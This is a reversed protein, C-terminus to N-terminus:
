DRLEIKLNSIAVGDGADPNFVYFGFTSPVDDYVIKDWTVGRRPMIRDVDAGYEYKFSWPSQGVNESVAFRNTQEGQSMLYAAGGNYHMAVHDRLAQSHMVVECAKQGGTLALSVSIVAHRVGVPFFFSNTISGQYKFGSGPFEWILANGEVKWGESRDLGRCSTRAFEAFTEFAEQATVEIQGDRYLKRALALARRCRELEATDAPDAPVIAQIQQEADDLRSDALAVRIAALTGAVGKDTHALARDRFHAYRYVRWGFLEGEYESFVFPVVPQGSEPDTPQVPEIDLRNFADGAEAFHGTAVGYIAMLNVAKVQMKKDQRQVAQEFYEHFLEWYQPERFSLYNTATNMEESTLEDLVRPAMEPIGSGWNGNDLCERALALLRESTGHWKKQLYALKRAYTRKDGPVLRVAALFHQQMYEFPLGLGMAVAILERHAAWGLPNQAIAAELNQRARELREAFLRFGQESVKDATANGRASWAWPILYEGRALCNSYDTEEHEWNAFVADAVVEDGLGRACELLVQHFPAEGRQAPALDLVQKFIQKRDPQVSADRALTRMVSSCTLVRSDAANPRLKTAPGTERPDLLVDWAAVCEPHRKVFAEREQPWAFALAEVKAIYEGLEVADEASEIQPAAVWARDDPTLEITMWALIDLAILGSARTLEDPALDHEYTKDRRSEGGGRCEVTLHRQDGNEALRSIAYLPTGVARTCVDIARQDLLTGGDWCRAGLLTRRVHRPDISMRKKPSCIASYAAIIGLGAGDPRIRNERDIVPFVLVGTRLSERPRTYAERIQALLDRAKAEPPQPPALPDVARSPAALGREGAVAIPDIFDDDDAAAVDLMVAQRNDDVVVRLLRKRLLSPWTFIVMRRRGVTAERELAWGSINGRLDAVTPFTQERRSACFVRLRDATEKQFHWASAELGLLLLLVVILGWCIARGIRSRDRQPRPEDPLFISESTSMIRSEMSFAGITM